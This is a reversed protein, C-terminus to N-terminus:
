IANREEAREFPAGPIFLTARGNAETASTTSTEKTKEPQMGRSVAWSV